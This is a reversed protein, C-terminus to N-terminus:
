LFLRKHEISTLLYRIKVLLYRATQEFARYQEEYTGKVEVPDPISWHIMASTGPFSPCVERMRDCVTVIVDFSQGQLEDIHKSRQQSIDIDLAALARVALPHLSAPQSGASFVQLAQQSLYRLLGEAMQSRASNKTCLFLVRLPPTPVHWESRELEFGESSMAPHLMEGTAQYLRRLSDLELSYYIDRGDASSRRETVVHLERLKRLHYSVANQPQGLFHVIEAVTHDSHALFVLIKWRLDHALVKLFDPASPPNLEM